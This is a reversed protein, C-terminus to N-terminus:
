AFGSAHRLMHIHVRGPPFGAAETIRKLQRNVGDTTFPGGRLRNITPQQLLMWDM